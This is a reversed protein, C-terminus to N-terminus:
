KFIESLDKIRFGSAGAHGGGGYTKAILSCDVKKDDNYLSFNWNGNEYWFCAFGDYGDKHYDIGFNVPNFREANVCAFKFPEETINSRRFGPFLVVFKQNYKQQAEVCLYRYIAEGSYKIGEILETARYRSKLYEELYHLAQEPNFIIQRAGYQFTLVKYEEDAPVFQPTIEKAEGYEWMYGGAREREGKCVKGINQSQIETVKEAQIISDFTNIVFGDDDLQYVSKGRIGKNIAHINNELYTAWELNSAYNNLRNSDKHNVTPKSEPNPIFAEAVLQHVNKMKAEGNKYLSVVRYGRKSIAISLEKTDKHLSQVNGHNSVEYLGEYDRISKWIQHHGFCDYRGLLRVLEPIIDDPFLFYWTLECAAFRPNRNGPVTSHDKNRFYEETETITRAHHDIWVLHTKRSLDFMVDPPFSIDVMFLMDTEPDIEPIPDGYNWGILITSPFRHKVIAASMWGDLDKSHYICTIM